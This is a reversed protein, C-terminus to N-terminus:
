NKINFKYGNGNNNITISKNTVRYPKGDVTKPEDVIGALYDISVNYFKALVIYKDIGMMNKGLEYRSYQTQNIRLLKAVEEQKLNNDERVDRLRQYFNM